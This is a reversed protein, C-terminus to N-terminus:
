SDSYLWRFRTAVEEIRRKGEGNADGRLLAARAIPVLNHASVAAVEASCLLGGAQFETSGKGGVRSLGQDSLLRCIRERTVHLLPWHGAVPTPHFFSGSSFTPASQPQSKKPAKEPGM